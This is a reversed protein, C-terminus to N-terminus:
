ELEEALNVLERLAPLAEGLDSAIDKPNDGTAIDKILKVLDSAVAQANTITDNM